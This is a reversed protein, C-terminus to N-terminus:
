LFSKQHQISKCFPWFSVLFNAVLMALYSSNEVLHMALSALLTEAYLFVGIATVFLVSGYAREEGDGDKV